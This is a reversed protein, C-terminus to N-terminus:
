RVLLGTAPSTKAVFIADGTAKTLTFIDYRPDDPIGAAAIIGKPTLDTSIKQSLGNSLINIVSSISVEAFNVFADDNTAFMALTSRAKIGRVREYNTKNPTIYFNTLAETLLGIPSVMNPTARKWGEYVAAPMLAAQARVTNVTAQNFDRSSLMASPLAELSSATLEKTLETGNFFGEYSLKYQGTKTDRNLAANYSGNPSGRLLFDVRNCQADVEASVLAGINQRYFAEIEARTANGRGTIFTLLAEHRQMAANDGLFRYEQIGKFVLAGLRTDAQKPNDHSLIAEAEPPGASLTYYGCVAGELVTDLINPKGGLGMYRETTVPNRSEIVRWDDFGQAKWRIQAYTEIDPWQNQASVTGAFILALTLTVILKKM